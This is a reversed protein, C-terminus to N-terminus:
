VPLALKPLLSPKHLRDSRYVDMVTIHLLASHLALHDPSCHQMCAALSAPMVAYVHCCNRSRPLFDGADARGGFGSSRHVTMYVLPVVPSGFTHTYLAEKQPRTQDDLIQLM